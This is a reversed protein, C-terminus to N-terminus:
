PVRFDDESSPIIFEKLIDIGTFDALLNLVVFSSLALVIGIVAFVMTNRAKEVNQSNGGSLMWRVSGVILMIFAAIGIMTIAVSLVNGILCTIGQITAVGNYVCKGPGESWEETQAMVAQPFLVKLVSQIFLLNLM